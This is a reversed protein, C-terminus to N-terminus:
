INTCCDLRFLWHSVLSFCFTYYIYVWQQTWHCRHASIRYASLLQYGRAITKCVTFVNTTSIAMWKRLDPADYIPSRPLLLQPSRTLVSVFRRHHVFWLFLKIHIVALFSTKPLRRVSNSLLHQRSRLVLLHFPHHVKHEIEALNTLMKSYMCQFKVIHLAM